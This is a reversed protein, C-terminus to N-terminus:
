SIVTILKIRRRRYAFFDILIERHNFTLNTITSDAFLCSFYMYKLVCVTSSSLLVYEDYDYVSPARCANQSSPPLLDSIPQKDAM